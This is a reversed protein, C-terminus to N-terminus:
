QKGQKQTQEAKQTDIMLKNGFAKISWFLSVRRRAMLCMSPDTLEPDGGLGPRGARTQSSGPRKTKEEGDDQSVQESRKHQIM